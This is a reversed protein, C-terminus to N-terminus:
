PSRLDQLAIGIDALMCFPQLYHPAFDSLGFLNIDGLTTALLIAVLTGVSIGAAILAGHVIGCLRNDKLTLHWGNCCLV